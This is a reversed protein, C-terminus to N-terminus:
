ILLPVNWEFGLIEEGDGETDSSPFVVMVGAVLNNLAGRKNDGSEVEEV